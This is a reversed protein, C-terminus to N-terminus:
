SRRTTRIAQAAAARMNAVIKRGAVQKGTAKFMLKPRYTPSKTTFWFVPEIFIGKRRWIGRPLGGGGQGLERPVFFTGARKRSRVSRRSDTRTGEPLAKFQSLIQVILSPRVRGEAPIAYESPKMVGAIILKKEYPKRRRVGGVEQPLLYIERADDAIFVRGWLDGKKTYKVRVASRTFANPSAFATRIRQREADRVDNLTKNIGLSLAFPVQRAQLDGLANRLAPVGVMGSM